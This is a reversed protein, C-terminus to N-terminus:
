STDCVTQIASLFGCATKENSKPDKRGSNEIAERLILGLLAELVQGIPQTWQQGFVVGGDVSLDQGGLIQLPGGDSCGLLVQGGVQIRGGCRIKGGGRHRGGASLDEPVFPVEDETCTRVHVTLVEGAWDADAPDDSVVEGEFSDGCLSQLATFLSADAEDQAGDTESGCAALALAGAASLLLYKM